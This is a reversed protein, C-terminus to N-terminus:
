LYLPRCFRRRCEYHFLSGSHNSPCVPQTVTSAERWFRQHWNICLIAAVAVAAGWRRGVSVMIIHHGRHGGVIITSKASLVIGAIVTPAAALLPLTQLLLLMMLLLAM